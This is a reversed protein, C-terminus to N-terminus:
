MWLRGFPLLLHGQGRQIWFNSIKTHLFRKKNTELQHLQHHFSIGGSNAERKNRRTQQRAVCVGFQLTLGLGGVVMSWVVARCSCAIDRGRQSTPKIFIRWWVAKWVQFHLVYKKGRSSLSEARNSAPAVGSSAVVLWFAQLTTTTGKTCEFM